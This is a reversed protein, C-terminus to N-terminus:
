EIMMIETYVTKHINAEASHITKTRTAHSPKRLTNNM